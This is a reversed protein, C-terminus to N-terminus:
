ADPEYATVRIYRDYDARETVPLKSRTVRLSYGGFIRGESTLVM